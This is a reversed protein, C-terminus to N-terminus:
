YCDIIRDSHVKLEKRYGHFKLTELVVHIGEKRAFKMAPAFDSDGTVLVITDVVQRLAIWAIDLGIKMDVGKQNVNPQLDDAELPRNNQVIDELRDGKLKWGKGTLTGRRVAFFDTVELTDILSKNAKFLDTKSLKMKSNDIPNTMDKSLPSCDYYYARFLEGDLKLIIRKTLEVIDEPTPYAKNINKLRKSVFGGDFM